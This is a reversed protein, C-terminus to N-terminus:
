KRSWKRRLKQIISEREADCPPCEVMIRQRIADRVEPFLRDIEWMAREQEMDAACMKGAAQEDAEDDKVRSRHEELTQLRKYVADIVRGQTVIHRAPGFVQAVIFPENRRVVAQFADFIAAFCQRPDEVAEHPRKNVVADAIQRFEFLRDWLEAYIQYEKELRLRHDFSVGQQIRETWLRGFMALLWGLLLFGIEHM